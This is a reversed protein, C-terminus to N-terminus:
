IVVSEFDLYWRILGNTGSMFLFRTDQWARKHFLATTGAVV